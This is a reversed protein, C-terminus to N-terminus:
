KLAKIKDAISIAGSVGCNFGWVHVQRGETILTDLISLPFRGLHERLYESEINIYARNNGEGKPYDRLIVFGVITMEDEAYRVKLIKGSLSFQSCDAVSENPVMNVLSTMRSSQGSPTVAEYVPARQAHATACGLLIELILLAILCHM